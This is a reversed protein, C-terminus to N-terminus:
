SGEYQRDNATPKDIRVRLVSQGPPLNEKVEAVYSSPTIIPPNDNVDVVNIIVQVTSQM